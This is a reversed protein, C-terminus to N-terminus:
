GLFGPSSGGASGCGSGRRGRGNRGCRSTLGRRDPSDAVGEPDRSTGPIPRSRPTSRPPAEPRASGAAVPRWRDTSERRCALSRARRGPGRWASGWARALSSSTARNMSATPSCARRREDAVRLSARHARQERSRGSRAAPSTIIPEGVSASNSARGGTPAEAIVVSLQDFMISRSNPRAPRARSLPRGARHFSSVNQRQDDSKRRMLALGPAATAGSRYSDPDRRGGRGAPREATGVSGRTSDRQPPDPGDVHATSPYM